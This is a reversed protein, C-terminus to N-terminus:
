DFFEWNSKQQVSNNNASSSTSAPTSDFIEWKTTVVVPGSASHRSPQQQQHQHQDQQQQQEQVPTPRQGNSHRLPHEQIPALRQGKSYKRQNQMPIQGGNSNPTSNKIKLLDLTEVCKQVRRAQMKRQLKADGDAMIGDLKLLQNMLLEILTLVDKEAVKGGKSIISELASVQGALRDVELSIDSISKSAKEMKANKRMELFRREQSIPDEVLVIKSRDKVGTTDLFAKSDREKDKYILKQDQHHLGTPGTLIKKLEGFTAQSSISIEHYISGYKVRVRITPAPASSRESDPNRKQVLMGGPRIEWESGSEHGTGAASGTLPSLVTPKDKMRMM